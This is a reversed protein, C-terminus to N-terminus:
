MMADWVTQERPTFSLIGKQSKSIAAVFPQTMITNAQAGKTTVHVVLNWDEPVFPQGGPTKFDAIIGRTAEFPKGGFDRWIGPIESPSKFQALLGFWSSSSGGSEQRVLQGDQYYSKTWSVTVRWGGWQEWIEFVQVQTPRLVNGKNDQLLVLHPAGSGPSEHVKVAIQPNDIDVGGSLDCKTKGDKSTFRQAPYSPKGALNPGDEEERRRGGFLGGMLGGVLGKGISAATDGASTEPMPITMPDSLRFLKSAAKILIGALDFRNPGDRLTIPHRVPERGPQQIGVTYSGPQWNKGEPIIVVVGNEDTKKEEKEGTTDNTLSVETNPPLGTLTADTVVAAAKSPLVILAAILTASRLGNELTSRVPKM